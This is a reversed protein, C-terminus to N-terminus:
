PSVVPTLFFRDAVGAPGCCFSIPSFTKKFFAACLDLQNPSCWITHVSSNGIYSLTLLSRSLGEICVSIRRELAIGPLM